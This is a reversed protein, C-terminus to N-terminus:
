TVAAAVARSSRAYKHIEARQSPLQIGVFRAVVIAKTVVSPLPISSRMAPFLEKVIPTRVMGFNRNLM